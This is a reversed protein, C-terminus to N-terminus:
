DQGLSLVQRMGQLLQQNDGHKAVAVRYYGPKLGRFNACDRILIGKEALKQQLQPEPLQFFVYNAASGLVAAGLASLGSVLAAKEQEILALSQRVYDTQGLAALGAAQAVCSVGWPQGSRRIQELFDTDSCLGFGLRIGAMAYLKTFSGLIFLGPYQGLRGVRSIEQAGPVFPLFCEDLFVRVGCADCAQLIDDLLRAPVLQGTPNGPQCLFLADLDPTIHGLIDGDLRFGKEAAAPYYQVQCGVAHLAGEYEAFSPVPLLAKRPRLAQAYRYILDAAGNGFVLQAAPVQWQRALGQALERCHPDPYASSQEVAQIAAAKVAPPMGLLNLSASFDLPAVGYRLRFGHIDGGHTTNM